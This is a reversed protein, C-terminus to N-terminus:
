EVTLSVNTTASTTGSVGTVSITYLGPTTGNGSAASTSTPVFSGSCGVAGGALVALLVVIGLFARWARRRAPIGFLLVFALTAGGPAYWPFTNRAPDTAALAGAATSITLTATVAGTSGLHVPSSAGFSFTPLNKAGTPATVITATLSVAGTFGGTPTITIVSTNGSNAGPAITVASAALAFQPQVSAAVIENISSSASAAYGSGGQYAASVTLSGPTAPVSGSYTAVGSTNLAVTQSLSGITFVVNGTPPVAAGPTTVTATLTFPSGVTLTGGDPSISLSVTTPMMPVAAITLPVTTTVTRDGSSGAVTIAYNGARAAYSAGFALMSSATTVAQSFSATVGAPLPSIVALHVSGSFGAQPVVRIADTTSAGQVLNISAPAANLAFSPPPTVSLFLAATTSQTGSTGNIWLTYFGAAATSNATITLQSSGTTSNPSFSATIGNPLGSSIALNVAGSFGNQPAVTVTDAVSSGQAVALSSQAVTLGFSPQPKATVALNFQNITGALSGSAQIGLLGAGVPASSSATLTLTSTQGFTISSPSFSGTVGAPLAPATLKITDSYKSVPVASVTLAVTGGQAINSPYPTVNLYFLQPMVVVALTTTETENGSTGTITLMADTNVPTSDSATLTLASTGTTPNEVWSATMGAPLGSTVALNVSGNFGATGNILVTASGSNGPYLKLSAPAAALSFGPANVTLAFTTSETESGSAGTVTILYSGRLLSSAATLTLTSKGATPNQSWSANIGDPLGSVALNVNGSFGAKDAVTITTSASGGPAVSVTSASSSLTFSASAAPALADILAQGAPSGWGTVLDYGPVANYYPWGCCNGRTDNNGLVVDHFDDAYGSGTGLAYLTPNLFGISPEGNQAAQQNVLAMFGAWRPASFSTGGWDGRCGSSSCIYNDTNAEAAVDPVNRLTMSGGNTSTAIGAQWAPMSIGDPSIGGGSRNWATESAWTQGNVTLDTGGTATVFADEAPFFSDFYPDFQGWDGSAAFVSQGQAACEELFMEDTAPDDPTWSWSISVQQAVDESAIANLIDADNSGIYVRVQSLGPAMGIAQVIDLVEESDDGSASAGTVGDLLVNNVPVSNSQGASAFTLDVNSPNYGDFELLGVTQGAGTLATGGYYAARMDSALFAGNPGSGSATANALGDQAAAHTAMPRPTSFNNLGAVHAVPVALDVSPERDPSFFLRNEAPHHYLGMRLNFAKEVQAASGTISVVMRNAPAAGVTFGNAQAFQVVAQYDQPTPAFEEAFQSTSLFRHYDPSSPDYLRNLLSALETQNRLPLVISLNM